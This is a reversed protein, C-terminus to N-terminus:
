NNTENLYKDEPSTELVVVWHSEIHVWNLKSISATKDPGM